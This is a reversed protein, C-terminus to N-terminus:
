SCRQQMMTHLTFALRRNYWSNYCFYWVELVVHIVQTVVHVECLFSTLKYSTRGARYLWSQMGHFEASIWVTM